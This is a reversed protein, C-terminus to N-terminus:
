KEIVEEKFRKRLTERNDYFIDIVTTENKDRKFVLTIVKSDYLTRGTVFTYGEKFKYGDIDKPELNWSKTVIDKIITPEEGIENGDADEDAGDPCVYTPSAVPAPVRFFGPSKYRHKDIRGRKMGVYFPQPLRLVHM